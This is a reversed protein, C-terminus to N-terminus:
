KGYSREGKWLTVLSVRKAQIRVWSGPPNMASLALWKEKVVIHHDAVVQGISLDFYGLKRRINGITYNGNENSYTQGPEINSPNGVGYSEYIVKDLVIDLDEDIYYEEYVPTKHISHIFQMAFREQIKIGTVYKLEGTKGDTITLALHHNPLLLFLAIGFGIFAAITGKLHKM